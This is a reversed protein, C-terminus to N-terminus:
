RKARTTLVSTCRWSSVSGGQGNVMGSAIPHVGAVQGARVTLFETMVEKKAIVPEISDVIEDLEFGLTDAVMRTSEPLGVHRVTGAAIRQQFEGVTLGAGIKLQLPKRRNGAEQVRHIIIRDVRQCAATLTLPLADMAFGPNVGTGLVTVDHAKAAQDLQAALGDHIGYPFALEECSSIVNAGAEVASLLQPLVAALSSGTCHLVVAPRTERLCEEAAAVAVDMQKGLGLVSGLDQGAKSPDPDIAAVLRLSSRSAVLRAVSIGIPGLGMQAVAYVADSSTGAM